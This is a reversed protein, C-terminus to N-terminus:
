GIKRIALFGLGALLGLGAVSALWLISKKTFFPQVTETNQDTSSKETTLTKILIPTAKPESKKVSPSIPTPTPIPSPASSVSSPTSSAFKLHCHLVEYPVSYKECNTRCVHCSNTDVGGPHALVFFPLLFVIAILFKLINRQSM